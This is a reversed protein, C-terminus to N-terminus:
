AEAGPQGCLSRASRLGSQWIRQAAYLRDIEARRLGCMLALVFVKFAEPDDKALDKQAASVLKRVDFASRYRMSQRPELKVGSFPSCFDDPFAIFALRHSSFLSRAQRLTSNVSIKAARQAVPSKGAKNLYETRWAQILAPTLTRLEVADIKKLWEARGAKKYDYKFKEGAFGFIDAVIKRFRRVYEAM